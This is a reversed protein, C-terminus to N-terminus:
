QAVSSAPATPDRRPQSVSPSDTVQELSTPPSLLLGDDETLPSYHVDEEDQWLCVGSFWSFGAPLPSTALAAPELRVPAPLLLSSGPVAHQAASEWLSHLFAKDMLGQSELRGRTDSLQDEMIELQPHLIEQVDDAQLLDGAGKKTVERWALRIM